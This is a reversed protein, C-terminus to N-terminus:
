NLELQTEHCYGCHFKVRRQCFLFRFFISNGDCFHITQMESQKNVKKQLKIDQKLVM